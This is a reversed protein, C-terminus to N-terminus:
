ASPKAFIFFAQSSPPWRPWRPWRLAPLPAGPRTTESPALMSRFHPSKVLLFSPLLPFGHVSNIM